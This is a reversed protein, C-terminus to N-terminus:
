KISPQLLVGSWSQSPRYNIYNGPRRRDHPFIMLDAMLWIITQLNPPQLTSAAPKPRAAELFM